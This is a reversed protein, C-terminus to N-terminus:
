EGEETRETLVIIDDELAFNLETGEYWNMENVIWEPIITYYEGSISDVEVSTFNEAPNKKM